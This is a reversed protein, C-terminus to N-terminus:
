TLDVGRKEDKITLANYIEPLTEASFRCDVVPGM